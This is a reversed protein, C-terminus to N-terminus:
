AIAVCIIIRQRLHNVDQIEEAYVVNKVQGWFFLRISDFGSGTEKLAYLWQHITKDTPAIGSYERQFNRQVITVPGTRIPWSVCQAKQQSTAM